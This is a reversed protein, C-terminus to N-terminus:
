GNRNNPSGILPLNVLQQTLFASTSNLNAMITDLAAFQAQYRAQDAAVRANVATERDQLNKITTNLSDTVNSLAGTSGLYSSLMQNFQYAYGQAYTVNGRSGTSAGSVQFQLGEAASGTAGILMQGRGTATVGSFSGAADVGASASPANGVLNTAGAGASVSVNSASGYSASNIQLIGSNDATVTVSSGVASFAAVGNIASQVATALSNADSYNAAQLQVAATVGDLTLNFTDNVGTTIALGAATGGQLSGQTALRTVNLSYTGPQTHATSGIYSAGSDTASGTAAFLQGVLQPQNAVASQLKTANLALTGDLQLSIGISDLTGTQGPGYTVSHNLLSGLASQVLLATSDGTLPSATRTAADYATLNHLTTAVKNYASVFNQATSQLASTDQTVTLTTPGAGQKLLNITVGQLANTLTNSASTVSVGDITLVADQAAVTQSLNKTTAGYVLKSLGANDTNNGDDDVASIQLSNSASAFVLRNGTGDNIISATVGIKAANVADRIGALTNNTSDIVVSKTAASASPTFTSGGGSYTGFQFTLTGTGVVTSTSAFDASALQQAQALLTVNLTHTGATAASGATVTAISSDGMTASQAHFAFLSSMGQATSQLNSLAGQLSGFASIETQYSSVQNQLLTLPAKDLAVLQSIISSVNLGSGIGTSSLTGLGSTSTTTPVTSPITTAM